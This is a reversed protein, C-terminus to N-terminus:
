DWNWKDWRRGHGLTHPLCDGRQVALRERARLRRNEVHKVSRRFMDDWPRRRKPQLKSREGRRKGKRVLRERKRFVHEAGTPNCLPCGKSGDCAEDAFMM